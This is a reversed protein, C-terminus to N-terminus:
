NKWLDKNLIALFPIIELRGILMLLILVWRTSAHLIAFSDLPGIIGYAPGVNGLATIASSFAVVGNREVFLIILVGIVYILFYFILFAVMQSAVDAAIPSGELKIPYVGQPHIIKNLERKLYKGIFIWRIIKIGGSTSAACGGTFFALFLIVKSITDWKIYNDVAFGTTTMTTVIEFFSNILANKIDYHSNIVLSLTLLLSLVFTIVLYIKLEESKFLPTPKKNKICRYVIIYNIGAIFMFFLVCLTVKTSHYDIISNPMASFGGTAITSFSTIVSNYLDLGCFKLAIIELITYTLYITWLWSATYRIRPTAKDETPMPAEAYFMQRGAVAIRPLVAIFLVVIGMGGLWQSLSRFFFLTKPYLSFDKMITAGTTTVGSMSEFCANTFTMGYFLYPISYILAFLVWSFFVTTLSETKKINDIDKQSVKKVTFLFGLGITFIGTILFPLVEGKENLLFAAIIPVIFLAGIHKLFTGLINFVIGYRM